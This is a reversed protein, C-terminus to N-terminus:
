PGIRLFSPLWGKFVWRAGDERALQKTIAWIGQKTSSAMLRTKVVDVPNTVTAAIAGALFSASIQTGLTDAAIGQGVLLKKLEDYSALQGATQVAARSSNALWGRFWSPVGEERTMQILGDFVHKYNRRQQTPISSDNQMRVNLVDAFNGVIGGAFGSAAAAAILLLIGPNPAVHHKIEEYIAFRATSYTLQRVLSASIGSYFGLM